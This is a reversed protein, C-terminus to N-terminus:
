PRKQLLVGSTGKGISLFNDGSIGGRARPLNALVDPVIHASHDIKALESMFTKELADSISKKEAASLPIGTSVLVFDARNQEQDNETAM